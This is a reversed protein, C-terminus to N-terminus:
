KVEQTEQFLVLILYLVSFLPIVFKVTLKFFPLESYFIRIHNKGADTMCICLKVTSLPTMLLTFLFLFIWAQIPFGSM